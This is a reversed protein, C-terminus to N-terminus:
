QGYELDEMVEEVSVRPNVTWNRSWGHEWEGGLVAIIQDWLETQKRLARAYLSPDMQNVTHM